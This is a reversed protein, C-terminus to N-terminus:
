KALKKYWCKKQIHWRYHNEKLTDIVNQEPKEEFYLEEGNKEENFVVKCSKKIDELLM